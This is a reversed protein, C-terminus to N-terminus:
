DTLTFKVEPPILDFKRSIAAKATESIKPTMWEKLINGKRDYIVFGQYVLGNEVVFAMKQYVFSSRSKLKIYLLADRFDFKMKSIINSQEAIQNEDFRYLISKALDEQRLLPPNHHENDLKSQLYNWDHVIATVDYLPLDTENIITFTTTEDDSPNRSKLSNTVIFPYGEGGTLHDSIYDTKEVLKNNLEIIAATQDQIRQDRKELDSKLNDREKKLDSLQSKLERNETKTLNIMEQKDKAAEFSQSISLLIAGIGGIFILTLAIISLLSM